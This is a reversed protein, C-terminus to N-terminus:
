KGGGEESRAGDRPRGEQEVRGVALDEVGLVEVVLPVRGREGLDHRGVERELGQLGALEGELLLDGAALGGGVLRGAVEAEGDAGLDGDVGRELGEDDFRGVVDGDHEGLRNGAAVDGENGLHVIM